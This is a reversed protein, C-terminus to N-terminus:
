GYTATVPGVVVRPAGGSDVVFVGLRVDLVGIHAVRGTDGSTFYDAIFRTGGFAEEHNQFLDFYWGEFRPAGGTGHTGSTIEVVMSLFRDEDPSLARNALEDQGIEDLVRLTRGLSGFYAQTQLEDKPDLTAMVKEGRAAYAMLSEYVKPAPEVYGYPIECGAESYAEAAMLVYNHRIQAFAAITSSMRMDAYAPTRMFSPLTGELPTGIERIAGFWASYLDEQSLAGNALARASKLNTALSPYETIESQLYTLARDNGLAYAVDPAGIMQRDPTESHTLPRAMQVDPVIRPGLMTTIVSLNSCGEWAYQTRATRQFDGGIAAQVARATGPITIKGPPTLAALQAISVDERRGALLSWARDMQEIDCMASARTALDALAVASAAERPTQEARDTSSSSQCSRTVLNFEIRSLWMAARFYPKLDGTVSEEASRAYHGRPKFASWDVERERGFLEISEMPGAAEAQAVWKAIESDNGFQSPLPKEELLRRAVTLYVDLDATVEKPYNPAAAPLADYLRALLKALLPELRGSEIRALLVDNEAYIAHLVSDISVYLPLQSQYIEHYASPYDPETLRAPVVFGQKTLLNREATTLGLRRVVRDLSAPPSVHDWPLFPAPPGHVGPQLIADEADDLAFPTCAYDPESTRRDRVNAKPAHTESTCASPVPSRVDIASGADVAPSRSLAALQPAPAGVCAAAVVLTLTSFSLARRM